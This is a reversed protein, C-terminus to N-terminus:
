ETQDSEGGSRTVLVALLRLRASESLFRVSGDGFAFNGGGPHFSGFAGNNRGTGIGGGGAPDPLAKV